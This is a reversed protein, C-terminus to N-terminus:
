SWGILDFRRCLITCPSWRIDEDGENALIPLDLVLSYPDPPIPDIEQMESPEGQDEATREGGWEYEEWSEAPYEVAGVEGPDNAPPM